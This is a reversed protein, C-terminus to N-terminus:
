LPKVVGPLPTSGVTCTSKSVMVSKEQMWVLGIGFGQLFVVGEQGLYGADETGGNETAAGLIHGV